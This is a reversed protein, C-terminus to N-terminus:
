KVEEEEELHPDVYIYIVWDGSGGRDDEISKISQNFKDLWKIKRILENTSVRITYTKPTEQAKLSSM